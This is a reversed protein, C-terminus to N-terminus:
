MEPRNSAANTLQVYEEWGLTEPRKEFYPNEM